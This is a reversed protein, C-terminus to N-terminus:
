AMEQGAEQGRRFAEREWSVRQQQQGTAHARERAGPVGERDHGVRVSSRPALRTSTPTKTSRLGTPACGKAPGTQRPGSGGASRCFRFAYGEVRLWDEVAQPRDPGMDERLEFSGPMGGECQPHSHRYHRDWVLGRLLRVVHSNPRPWTKGAEQWNVM